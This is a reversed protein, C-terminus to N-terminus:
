KLVEKLKSVVAPSLKFLRAVTKEQEEGSLPDIGLRSKKTDALFEQDKMTQVFAGRLTEARDRPTGPTLV